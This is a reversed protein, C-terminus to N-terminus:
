FLYIEAEFEDKDLPDSERVVVEDDIVDDTLTADNESSMRDIVDSEDYGIIMETDEETLDVDGVADKSIASNDYNMENQNIPLEPLELRNTSQYECGLVEGFPIMNWKTEGGSVSWGPSLCFENEQVPQEVSKSENNNNSELIQELSRLEYAEDPLKEFSDEFNINVLSLIDQKLTDQVSSMERLILTVFDRTFVNPNKMCIELLTLWPFTATFTSCRQLIWLVLAMLHNMRIDGINVSQPDLVSVLFLPMFDPSEKDLVQM